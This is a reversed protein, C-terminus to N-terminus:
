LPQEDVVHPAGVVSADCAPARGYILVARGVDVVAQPLAALDRPPPRLVQAVPLALKGVRRRRKQGLGLVESLRARPLADHAQVPLRDLADRLGGRLASTGRHRRQCRSGPAPDPARAGDGVDAKAGHCVVAKVRRELRDDAVEHIEDGHAQGGHALAGGFPQQARGGRVDHGRELVRARWKVRENALQAGITPAV